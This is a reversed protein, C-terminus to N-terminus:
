VATAQTVLHRPPSQVYHPRKSVNKAALRFACFHMCKKVQLPLGQHMRVTEERQSHRVQATRDGMRQTSPHELTAPRRFMNRSM